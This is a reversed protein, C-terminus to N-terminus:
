CEMKENKQYPNTGYPPVSRSIWLEVFRCICTNGGHFLTIVSSLQCDGGDSVKNHLKDQRAIRITKIKFPSYYKMPPQNMKM